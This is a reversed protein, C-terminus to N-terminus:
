ARNIDLVARIFSGKLRTYTGRDGASEALIRQKEHDYKELLDPHMRLCQRFTLWSTWHPSDRTVVHLHFRPPNGRTFFQRGALGYEGHSVYELGSLAQLLRPDDPQTSVMMAIDVVPKSKIGPLATSGIHEIAILYPITKLRQSEESFRSPWNPNYDVLRLENLALGDSDPSSEQKM